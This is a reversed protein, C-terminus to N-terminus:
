SILDKRERRIKAQNDQIGFVHYGTTYFMEKKQQADQRQQPQV